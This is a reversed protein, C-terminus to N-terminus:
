RGLHIAELRSAFEAMKPRAAPDKSLAARLLQDLPSDDLAAVLSDFERTFRGIKLEGQLGAKARLIAVALAYSDVTAPDYDKAPKTRQYIEPAAYLPTGSEPRTGMKREIAFGFDIIHVNGEADIMINEGKIDGHVVGNEHAKALTKATEVYHGLSFEPTEELSKGSVFETLLYAKGDETKVLGYFQMVAPNDKGAKEMMSAETQLRRAAKAIGSASKGYVPAKVAMPQHDPIELKFVRGEGGEGLKPLSRLEADPFTPAKPVPELGRITSALRADGEAQRGLISLEPSRVEGAKFGFLGLATADQGDPTTLKVQQSGPGPPTDVLRRQKCASFLSLFLVLRITAFYM